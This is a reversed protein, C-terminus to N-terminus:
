GIKFRISRFTLFTPISDAIPSMIILNQFLYEGFSQLVIKQGRNQFTLEHGKSQLDQFYQSHTDKIEAKDLIVLTKKEGFVCCLLSLLIFLLITNNRMKSNDQNSLCM